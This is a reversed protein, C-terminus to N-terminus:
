TKKKSNLAPLFAVRPPPALVGCLFDDGAATIQAIDTSTGSFTTAWGLLDQSYTPVYENETSSGWQVPFYPFRSFYPVEFSLEPNMSWTTYASGNGTFSPLNYWSTYAYTRGAITPDGFLRIRRSGRWYWFLHMFYYFPEAIYQYDNAVLVGEDVFPLMTIPVRLSTGGATNKLLGYRKMCDSVTGATDSVCYGRESSLTSECAFTDFHRTFEGRISCEQKVLQETSRTTKSTITSTATTTGRPILASLLHALQFDPGASRWVVVDITPTASTTVGSITDTLTFTLVMTDSDTSDTPTWYTNTLYPITFSTQTDGNIEVIRQFLDGSDATPDGPTNNNINIKIRAKM